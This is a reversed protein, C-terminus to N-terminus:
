GVRLENLPLARKAFRSARIAHVLRLDAPVLPQRLTDALAQPSPLEGPGKQRCRVESMTHRLAAASVSQTAPHRFHTDV